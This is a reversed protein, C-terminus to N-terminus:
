QGLRAREKLVMEIVLRKVGAKTMQIKIALLIRPFSLTLLATLSLTSLSGRWRCKRKGSVGVPGPHRLILYRCPMNFEADNIRLATFVNTYLLSLTQVSVEPFATVSPIKKRMLSFM